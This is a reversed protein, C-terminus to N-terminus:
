SEEDTERSEKKWPGTLPVKKLATYVPGGPQLDSKFLTLHDMVSEGCYIRGHSHIVDMLGHIGKNSKFRALTLHPSFPHDEPVFGARCLNFELEQQLRSIEKSGSKVGTWLVRPKWEAPFVGLGRVTYHIPAMGRSSSIMVKEVKEVDDPSIDGLFKLTLHINDSDVWKPSVGSFQFGKRLREKLNTLASRIEPSIELAIFARIKETSM